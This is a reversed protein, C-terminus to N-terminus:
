SHTYSKEDFQPNSIVAINILVVGKLVDFKVVAASLFFPALMAVERFITM